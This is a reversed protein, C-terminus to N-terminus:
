MTGIVPFQVSEVPEGNDGKKQGGSNGKKDPTCSYEPPSNVGYREEAWLLNWKEQTYLGNRRLIEKKEKARGDGNGQLVEDDSNRIEKKRKYCHEVNIFPKDDSNRKVNEKRYCHESKSFREVDSNKKWKEKKYCHESKGFREDDSNRKVNKRETVTNLSASSGTTM